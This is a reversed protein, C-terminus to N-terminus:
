SDSLAKVHASSRDALGNSRGNMPRNFLRKNVPNFPDAVM